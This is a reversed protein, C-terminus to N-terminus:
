ISALIEKALDEGVKLSNGVGRDHPYIQEFGAHFFNDFSTKFGPLKRLSNMEPLPAAHASKSASYAIVDKKHLAPHIECLAAFFFEFIEAESKGFLEASANYKSLYVVENSNPFEHLRNMQVIVQFPMKSDTVSTWFATSIKCKLILCIQVINISKFDKLYSLEKPLNAFCNGLRALPIATVLIDNPRLSITRGSAFKLESVRNASFRIDILSESFLFEHTSDNRKLDQIVKEFIKRYTGVLFGFKCRLNLFPKTRIHQRIRCALWYASVEIVAPGFKEQLLPRWIKNTFKIGFNKTSWEIAPVSDLDSPAEWLWLKALSFLCRLFKAGSLRAVSFISDFNHFNGDAYTLTSVSNWVIQSDLGIKAIFNELHESENYSLFHYFRDLQQEGIKQDEALGGAFNGADILTIKEKAQSLEFCAAIGIAGAGVIYIRRESM